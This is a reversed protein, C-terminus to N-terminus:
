DESLEPKFLKPVTRCKRLEKQLKINEQKLRRNEAYLQKILFPERKNEAQLQSNAWRLNKPEYNGFPNIRDLSHNIPRDGLNVLIWKKFLIYDSAWKVDMQIGTATYSLDKKCRMKISKWLSYLYHKRSDGHKRFKSGIYEKRFCGCSKTKNAVLCNTGVIKRAGCDCICDWRSNGVYMFPTLRGFRKSSLNLRPKAM